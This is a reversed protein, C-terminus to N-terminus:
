KPLEKGEALAMDRLRQLGRENREKDRSAATYKDMPKEEPPGQAAAQEQLWGPYSNVCNGLYVTKRKVGTNDELDKRAKKVLSELQEATTIHPALQEVHGFATPTLNPPIDKNFFLNCWLGWFAAEQPTLKYKPPEVPVTPPRPQRPRKPPKFGSAQATPVPEVSGVPPFATQAPLPVLPASIAQVRSIGPSRGVRGDAAPPLAAPGPAHQSTIQEPTHGQRVFDGGSDDGRYGMNSSLGAPRHSPETDNHGHTAGIKVAELRPATDEENGIAGNAIHYHSETDSHVAPLEGSIRQLEEVEELKENVDELLDAPTPADAGYTGEETIESPTIETIYDNTNSTAKEANSQRNQSMSQQKEPLANDDKISELTTKVVITPLADIADQVAKQNVLYQRTQDLPMKPNKRMYIFKKSKLLDLARKITTRHPKKMGPKDSMLDEQFDEHSKWIWLTENKKAIKIDTWYILIALLMAALMSGDCIELLDEYLIVLRSKPRFRIFSTRM